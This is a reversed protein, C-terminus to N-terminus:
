VKWEEEYEQEFKKKDRLEIEGDNKLCIYQKGVLEESFGDGKEVLKAKITEHKVYTKFEM